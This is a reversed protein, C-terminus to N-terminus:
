KNPKGCYFHNEMAYESYQSSIETCESSLVILMFFISFIINGYMKLPINIM